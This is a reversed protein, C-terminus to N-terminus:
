EIPNIKLYLDNIIWKRDILERPKYFIKLNLHKIESNILNIFKKDKIIVNYFKDLTFNSAYKKIAKKNAGTHVKFVVKNKESLFTSKETISPSLITDLYNFKKM